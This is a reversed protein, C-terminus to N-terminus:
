INTHDQPQLRSRQSVYAPDQRQQKSAKVEGLMCSLHRTCRHWFPWPMFRIRMHASLTAPSPERRGELVVAWKMRLLAVGAAGCGAGGAAAVAVAAAAAAVGVAAPCTFLNSLLSCAHEELARICPASESRVNVGLVDASLV